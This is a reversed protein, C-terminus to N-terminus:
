PSLVRDLATFAAKHLRENLDGSPLPARAHELADAFSEVSGPRVVLCCAKVEEPLRAYLGRTVLVWCGCCIADLIKTKFGFGYDSLLAVARAQVLADFPSELFGTAQIRTGLDAQGEQPWDGTVSFEWDTHRPGLGEVLTAFNRAASLLFPATGATTSM